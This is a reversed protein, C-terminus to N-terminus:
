EQMASMQICGQVMCRLVCVYVDVCVCVCVGCVCTEASYEEWSLPQMERCLGLLFIDSLSVAGGPFM